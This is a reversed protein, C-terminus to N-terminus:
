ERNLTLLVEQPLYTNRVASDTNAMFIEISEGDNIGVKDFPISLDIVDEYVMKIGEPNDLTWVDPHLVTTMRLPYLTNKVLTITFEHEFKETLIPYPNDNRSILRIHARSGLRSANRAYIYFQNIREIFSMEGNGKNLHLRFYMNKDDCGFHIKDVNKSERFINAIAGAVKSPNSKSSVKLIEM